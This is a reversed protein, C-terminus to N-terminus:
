LILNNLMMKYKNCDSENDPERGPDFYDKTQTFVSSLYPSKADEDEKSERVNTYKTACEYLAEGAYWGMALVGFIVLSGITKGAGKVMSETLINHYM